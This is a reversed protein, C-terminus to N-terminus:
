TRGVLELGWVPESDLACRFSPSRFASSCRGRGLAAELLRLRWAFGVVAAGAGDRLVEAAAGCDTFGVLRVAPLGEPLLVAPRGDSLKERLLVADLPRPSAAAAAVRGRGECLLVADLPRPSAKVLLAKGLLALAAPM